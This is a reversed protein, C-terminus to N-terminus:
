SPEALSIQEPRTQTTALAYAARERGERRNGGLFALNALLAQVETDDEDLAIARRIWDIAQKLAEDWPLTAYIAAENVLIRGLAGYAPAFAADLSISQQFFKKAREAEALSAMGVHWLGRQYSEWAGLSEPPKRLARQQEVGTVAPLIASAVTATIEDQVAFVDELTRDYREAWIHNGTM